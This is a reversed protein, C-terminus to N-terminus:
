SMSSQLSVIVRCIFVRVMFYFVGFLLFLICVLESGCNAIIWCGLYTLSIKIALKGDALDDGEDDDDDDDDDEEDEM